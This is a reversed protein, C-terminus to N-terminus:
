LCRARSRPSTRAKRCSPQPPLPFGLGLPPRDRPDGLAPAGGSLRSHGGAKQASRQHTVPEAALATIQVPLVCPPRTTPPVHSRPELSGTGRSGPRPVPSSLPSAPVSAAKWALLPGPAGLLTGGTVVPLGMLLAPRSLTPSVCTPESGCPCRGLRGLISVRRSTGGSAAQGWGLDQGLLRGATRGVQEGGRPLQGWSVGLGAATAKQPPPGSAGRQRAPDRM